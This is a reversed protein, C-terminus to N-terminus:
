PGSGPVELRAAPADRGARLWFLPSADAQWRQAAQPGPAARPGCEKRRGQGRALPGARPCRKQWLETELDDFARTVSTFRFTAGMTGTEGGLQWLSASNM